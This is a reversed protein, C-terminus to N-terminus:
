AKTRYSEEAMEVMNDFYAGYLKCCIFPAVGMVLTTRKGKKGEVMGVDMIFSEPYEKSEHIMAALRNIEDVDPKADREGRYVRIAQVVGHLVFVRWETSFVCDEVALFKMSLGNKGFYSIIDRKGARGKRVFAVRSLGDDLCFLYLYHGRFGLTRLTLHKGKCFVMKRNKGSSILCKPMTEGPIYKLKQGAWDSIFPMSGIPTVPHYNRMLTEKSIQYSMLGDMAQITRGRDMTYFLAFERKGQKSANRSKAISLITDACHAVGFNSDVEFVLAHM